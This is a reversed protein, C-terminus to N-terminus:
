PPALRADRERALAILELTRLAAAEPAAKDGHPASPPRPPREASGGIDDIIIPM